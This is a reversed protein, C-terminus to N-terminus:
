STAGDDLDAADPRQRYRELHARALIMTAANAASPVSRATTALEIAKDYDGRQARGSRRTPSRVQAM